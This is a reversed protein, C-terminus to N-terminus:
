IPLLIKSSQIILYGEPIEVKQLMRPFLEKTEKNVCLYHEAKREYEYYEDNCRIFTASHLSVIQPYDVYQVVLENNLIRYKNGEIDVVTNGSTEMFRIAEQSNM